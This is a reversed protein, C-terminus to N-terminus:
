RVVRWNATMSGPTINGSNGINNCSAVNINGSTPWKYITLLLGSPEYGAVSLPTAALDLLMNDSTTMGSVSVTITTECSGPALTLTGLSISGSGLTKTLTASAPVPTNNVSTTSTLSAPIQAATLAQFVPDSGTGQSSLVFGSAGPTLFTFASAGEAVPIYHATPDSVGTGGGAAGLLAFSPYASAGASVLPYGSTGPGIGKMTTGSVWVGTEYQAPSSVATVNGVTLCSAVGSASLTQVVDLGTCTSSGGYISPVGTATTNLMLGTGLGSLLTGNLGTVTFAGTNALSVDGSASVATAVNSGNGVFVKASALTTMLLTTPFNTMNAASITPATQYSPAGSGGSAPGAFVSNQAANSLGFTLNPTSTPNTVTTSFLPTLGGGSTTFTSVGGGGGSPWATICSAGICFGTAGSTIQGSAVINGTLNIGNCSALVNYSFEDLSSNYCLPNATASGLSYIGFYGEIGVDSFGSTGVHSIVLTSKGNSGNAIHDQITYIDTGTVSSAWYQGAVNLSPSNQSAGSTAATINSWYWSSSTTSNFSTNYTTTPLDLDASPSALSSWVPSSGSACSHDTFSIVGGSACLAGDTMNPVHWNIGTPFTLYGDSLITHGTLNTSPPSTGDAALGNDIVASECDVPGAILGTTSPTGGSATRYVYCAAAGGYEYNDVDITVTDGSDLTATGSVNAAASCGATVLNWSQAVCYSWIDDGAPNATLYPASPTPLAASALYSGGRVGLQTGYTVTVAIPATAGVTHGTASGFSININDALLSPYTNAQFLHQSSCTPTNGDEAWDFTDYLAGNACVKITFVETTPPGFNSALTATCDDLGTSLHCSGISSSEVNNYGSRSFNTGDTYVWWWPTANQNGVKFAYNHNGTFGNQDEALFQSSEFQVQDHPQADFGYGFEPGDGYVGALFDILVSAQPQEGGTQSNFSVEEGGWQVGPTSFFPSPNSSLQLAATGTVTYTGNPCAIAGLNNAIVFEATDANLVQAVNGNLCSAVGGTFASLFAYDYQTGPLGGGGTLRFTTSANAASITIFSSDVVVQTASVPPWSSGTGQPPTGNDNVYATFGDNTSGDYNSSDSQVFIQHGQSFVYNNLPVLPSDIELTGGSNIDVQSISNTTFTTVGACSGALNYLVSSNAASGPCNGGGGGSSQMFITREDVISTIGSSNTFVEALPMNGGFGTTSATPACYSAGNLFIYNTSNALLTLNGGAYNYVSGGCYSKGKDVAVQLGVGATVGYGIPIIEYGTIGASFTQIATWNNAQNLPGYQNQALGYNPILMLFAFLIIFKKM